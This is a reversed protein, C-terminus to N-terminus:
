ILLRRSHIQSKQIINELRNKDEKSKIIFCKTIKSSFFSSFLFNFKNNGLQLLLWSGLSVINMLTLLYKQIHDRGHFLLM